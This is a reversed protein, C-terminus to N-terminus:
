PMHQIDYPFRNMLFSRPKDTIDLRVFPSTQHQIERYIERAVIDRPALEALPHRGKMFREGADNFLVGGEGRLAESILFCQRNRNEKTYLGTPHFQIFEMNALKAGARLALAFGDGTAITPNTTYRYIQGLGGTAVVVYNTRYLHWRDKEYVMLGCVGDNETIIDSVFSNEHLVINETNKVTKELARVMELGTADGGAHLIRNMGHGGERTTLLHGNSDLDFNMGLKLLENIEKPGEEVIIRVADPDCMGAGRTSPIKLISHLIIM